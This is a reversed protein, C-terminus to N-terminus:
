FWKCYIWSRESHGIWSAICKHHSFCKKTVSCCSWSSTPHSIDSLLRRWLCSRCHCRPEISNWAVRWSL